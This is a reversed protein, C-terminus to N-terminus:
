RTVKTIIMGTLIGGVIYAPTEWWPRPKEVSQLITLKEIRLSDPHRRIDLSFLNVPFEYYARVTDRQIVTDISAAFPKTQIITDRIYVLKPRVKNIIIPKAPVLKYVTDYAITKTEPPVAPQTRKLPLFINALGFGIIFCVLSCIPILKNNM